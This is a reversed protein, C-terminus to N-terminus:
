AYLNTTYSSYYLRREKCIKVSINLYLIRLIVNIYTDNLETNDAIFYWNNGIIRYDRFIDILVGAINESTYKSVIKRLRLVVYMPM